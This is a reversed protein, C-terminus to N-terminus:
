AGGLVMRRTAERLVKGSTNRPLADVMWVRSPKKFTAMVSRCHEIVDDPSLEVGPRRVVAAVVTQGWREHPAGFVVCEAVGPLEAICAEVESPYVNMGGSVVLDSRRDSVYVYGAPDITGVDGTHYWGDRLAAETAEPRRWYGQMLTPARAILEGPTRGDHELPQGDEGVVDVVTDIVPRGASALVDLADGEGRMDRRTTATLLGGSNETMGWGELYRDGVVELMREHLHRPAKSAGHLLSQLSAVRGPSRSVLEAFEELRPSSVSTYSGHESEIAAIQEEVSSRGLMVVTGGVTVHSLLFAPVTAVFSMSGAFVGISGLALRYCLANSRALARVSRHTLMAGKPTGTTGSTYGIMLLADEPPPSLPRQSGARVLEDFGEPGVAKVDGRSVDEMVAEAREAVGATYFLARAGSDELQFRAERPKYRANIPAMVLGAKAAAFYLEVYELGDEMWAAVRDGPEFGSGRLAQALQDTRRDLEGYTREPGGRLKFAVQDPARLANARLLEGLQEL